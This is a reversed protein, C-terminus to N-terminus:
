NQHCWYCLADWSPISNAWFHFFRSEFIPFDNFIISKPGQEKKNQIRRSFNIDAMELFHIKICETILSHFVRKTTDNKPM